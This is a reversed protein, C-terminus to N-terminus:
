LFFNDSFVSFFFFFRVDLFLSTHVSLLYRGVFLDVLHSIRDSGILNFLVHAGHNSVVLSSRPFWDFGRGLSRLSLFNLAEIFVSAREVELNVRRLSLM